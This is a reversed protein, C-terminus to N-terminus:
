GSDIKVTVGLVALKFGWDVKLKVTVKLGVLFKVYKKWCMWSKAM